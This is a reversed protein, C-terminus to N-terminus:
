AEPLCIPTTTSGRLSPSGRATRPGLHSGSGPAVDDPGADHRARPRRGLSVLRTPASDTREVVLRRGGPALAIQRYALPTGIKGVTSGGRDYRVLEGTGASEKPVYLLTQEPSLAFHTYGADNAVNSVVVTPEGTM